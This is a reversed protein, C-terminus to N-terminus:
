AARGELIASTSQALQVDAGAPAVPTLWAAALTGALALAALLSACLTTRRARRM